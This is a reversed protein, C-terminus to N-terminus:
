RPIWNAITNLRAYKLSRACDHSNPKLLCICQCNRLLPRSHLNPPHGHYKEVSRSTFNWCLGSSANCYSDSYTHYNAYSWNPFRNVISNHFNKNHHRIYGLRIFAFHQLHINNPLWL